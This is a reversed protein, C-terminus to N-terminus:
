LSLAELELKEQDVGSLDDYDLRNGDFYVVIDDVSRNFFGVDPEPEAIDAQVFVPIVGMIKSDFEVM